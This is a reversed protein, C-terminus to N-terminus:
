SEYSLILTLSILLQNISQMSVLLFHNDNILFSIYGCFGSKVNIMKFNDFKLLVVLIVWKLLQHFHVSQNPQQWPRGVEPDTKPTHPVDGAAMTPSWVRKDVNYEQNSTTTVKTRKTVSTHEKQELIAVRKEVRESFFLFPICHYGARSTVGKAGSIHGKLLSPREDPTSISINMKLNVNNLPRISFNAEWWFPKVTSAIEIEYRSYSKANM